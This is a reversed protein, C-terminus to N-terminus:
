KCSSHLTRECNVVCAFTRRIRLLAQRQQVCIWVVFSVLRCEFCHNHRDALLTIAVTNQSVFPVFLMSLKGLFFVTLLILIRIRQILKVFIQPFITRIQSLHEEILIICFYVKAFNLSILM